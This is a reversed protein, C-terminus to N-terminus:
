APNVVDLEHLFEMVKGFYIRLFKNSAATMYCYYHKGEARKKDLFQYVPNDIPRNVVLVNCVQFLVKRLYPNGRKSINSSKLDKTGSQNPPSDLGAFATLAQKHTFRSVDGVEAMLQVGLVDGLGYMAMVVDYEPLKRSLDQM